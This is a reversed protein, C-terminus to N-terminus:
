SQHWDQLHPRPVQGVRWDLRTGISVIEQQPAQSFGSKQPRSSHLETTRKSSTYKTPLIGLRAKPVVSKDKLRKTPGIRSNQLPPVESIDLNSKDKELRHVKRKGFVKKVYRPSTWRSFGIRGLRALRLGITTCNECYGSCEQRRKRKRQPIAAIKHSITQNNM